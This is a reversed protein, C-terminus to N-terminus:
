WANPITGKAKIKAKTAQLPQEHKLQSNPTEQHQTLERQFEEPCLYSGIELSTIYNFNIM